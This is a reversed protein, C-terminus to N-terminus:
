RSLNAGPFGGFPLDGSFRLKCSSLKKGCVDQGYISSGAPLAAFAADLDNKAQNMAQEAAIVDQDLDNLEQEKEACKGAEIKQVFRVPDIQDDDDSGQKAGLGYEGTTSLTVPSGDYVAFINELDNNSNPDPDRGRKDRGPDVAFTASQLRKRKLQSETFGTRVGNFINTNGSQTCLAQGMTTTHRQLEKAQIWKTSLTQMLNPLILLTTVRSFLWQRKSTTM